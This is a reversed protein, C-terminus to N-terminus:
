MCFLVSKVDSMQCRVNRYLTCYYTYDYVFTVGARISVGCASKKFTQLVHQGFHLEIWDGWKGETITQFLASGQPRHDDDYVEGQYLLDKKFVYDGFHDPDSDYEM